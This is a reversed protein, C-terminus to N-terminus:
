YYCLIHHRFKLHVARAKQFYGMLGAEVRERLPDNTQELREYVNGRHTYIYIYIYICMISTHIHM